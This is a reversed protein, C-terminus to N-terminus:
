LPGLYVRGTEPDYRRNFEERTRKWRNHSWLWYKPDRQITKELERFYIETLEFDKYKKPERTILKFECEYYGRRVCKVDMYFVAHNASKAIRETGTLVPTDHHLFNTWYHINNWYPVQDSIYGVVVQKGKKKFEVIRRLTEAMPICVAGMRERLRLFLRDFDKNELPHYIQGCQADKTVYLPLSTIWEWNCYHGLYIACSQGDQIIEDVTETGKFVMRRQLNKKSITLLKMSEVIYDCLFLYFGKEIKIIESKKKEPFSDMLNKRVLRRRYRLVYYALVFLIDSLVYLVSLPLLSLLYWVFLVIYFLFKM